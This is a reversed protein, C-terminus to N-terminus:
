EGHRDGGRQHPFRQLILTAVATLSTVSGILTMAVRHSAIVLLGRPLKDHGEGLGTTKPV